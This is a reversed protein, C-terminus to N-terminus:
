VWWPPSLLKLFYPIDERRMAEAMRMLDHITTHRLKSGITALTHTQVIKGFSNADFVRFILKYHFIIM